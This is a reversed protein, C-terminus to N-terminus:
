QLEEEIKNLCNNWVRRGIYAGFGDITLGMKSLEVNLKALQERTPERFVDKPYPNNDRMEDIIKQIKLNM